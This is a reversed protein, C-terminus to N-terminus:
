DSIIKVIKETTKDAYHVIATWKAEGKINAIAAQRWNSEAYVLFPEDYATYIHVDNRYFEVYDIMEPYLSALKVWRKNQTTTTPELGQLYVTEKIDIAIGLEDAMRMAFFKDEGDLIEWYTPVEQKTANNYYGWSVGENMAVRMNGIDQSDENCIIPREPLIEKAKVIKNYLEGRTLRNGHIFICDSNQAIKESYHVGMGSCGVLMGDSERRAIDMLECMGEDTYIIPHVKFNGEANENAIEIIVNTFGKDRLWNSMFKTASIIGNDDKIKAAQAGYFYSVIVVMGIEDASIILRELRRLYKEDVSLGDEGYPNCNIQDNTLSFCTGGGQVGVTFARLGFEYWKPLADILKDTNEEANWKDIGFRSFQEPNVSDDFIGQIFRANMLLGQKKCNKIESYVPKDNILFLRGKISVKTKM